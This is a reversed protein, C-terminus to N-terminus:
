VAAGLRRVIEGGAGPHVKDCFFLSAKHNIRCLATLCVLRFAPVPKACGVLLPASTLRRQDRADGALDHAVIRDIWLADVNTPQRGSGGRSSDHSCRRNAYMRAEGTARGIGRASAAGSIVATKDTLLM